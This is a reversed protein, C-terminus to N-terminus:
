SSKQGLCFAVQGAGTLNGAGVPPIGTADDCDINAWETAPTASSSICVPTGSITPKVDLDGTVVIKQELVAGILYGNGLSSNRCYIYAYIGTNNPDMPASTLFTSLETGLESWNNAMPVHDDPNQTKYMEIATRLTSIDGQRRADRAKQRANDLSITSLTSLLSIISIVVLLEILSFGKPKNILM